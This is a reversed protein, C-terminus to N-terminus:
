LRYRHDQLVFGLLPAEIGRALAIAKFREGMEGPLTLIKAQRTLTLHRQADAPDSAALLEGLGCGLLFHAQTTYGAVSLDAAVAAEAVATFDVFATIDQLGPLLLPDAHARHRYHCVLTGMARQPHYYERRPYGYDVLLVVGRALREGLSRVWAALGLNIESEFGDPWAEGVEAHLAAVADALRPEAPEARWGFDDGEWAVRLEYVGQQTWRFRHVPMADLVENGLVVGQFGPEPLRELWRVRPLLHPLRERLLAQQRERLEGSLELILYREPLQGLHELEGLLDAALAGTGAGIELIDGGGTLELVQRCQRAVCRGFLPSIEPATVFDGEAGFKRAGASYYGFGPAYLALEMYRAFSLSGGAAALEARILERLRECHAAADPDPRPLDRLAREAARIAARFPLRDESSM